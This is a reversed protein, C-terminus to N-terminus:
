RKFHSETLSVFIIRDTKFYNGCCVMIILKVKVGTNGIKLVTKENIISGLILQWFSNLTHYSFDPMIYTGLSLWYHLIKM